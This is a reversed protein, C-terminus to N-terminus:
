AREGKSSSTSTPASTAREDSATSAITRSPRSSACARKLQPRVPVSDAGTTVPGAGGGPYAQLPLRSSTRGVWPPTRARDLSSGAPRTDRREDHVPRYQVCEDVLKARVLAKPFEGAGHRGAGAHGLRDQGQEDGREVLLERAREDAQERVVRVRAVRGLRRAPEEPRLDDGEERAASDAPSRAELRRRVEDAFPRPREVDERGASEHAGAGCCDRLAQRGALM